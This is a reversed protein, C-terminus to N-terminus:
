DTSKNPLSRKVLNAFNTLFHKLVDAMIFGDDSVRLTERLIEDVDTDEMDEMEHVMFTLFEPFDIAGNGNADWENIMDQFESDPGTEGTARMFAGLEQVSIVGDGDTDFFAFCEKFEAIQEATLRAAIKSPIKTNRSNNCDMKENLSSLKDQLQQKRNSAPWQFDIIVLNALLHHHM